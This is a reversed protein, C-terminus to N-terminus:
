QNAGKLIGGLRVQEARLDLLMQHLKNKERPLKQKPDRGLSHLAIRIHICLDNRTM